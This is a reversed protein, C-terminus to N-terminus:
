RCAKYTNVTSGVRVDHLGMIARIDPAKSVHAHANPVHTGLQMPLGALSKHINSARSGYPAMRCTTAGSGVEAPLRHRSGYSVHCCRLAGCDPSPTRLWIVRPLPLAWRLRSALNLAMLCTTASSGVEAQLRPGFGRAV